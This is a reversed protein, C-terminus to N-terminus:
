AARDFTKILNSRIPEATDSAVKEALSTLEKLQATVVEVQRSAHQQSLEVVQAPSKAAALQAAFDFAANANTRAMEILKLRYDASGKMVSSVIQDMAEKAGQAVTLLKDQTERTQALSKELFDSALNMAENAARSAEPSSSMTAPGTRTTPEDM